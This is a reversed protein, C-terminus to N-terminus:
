KEIGDAASWLPAGPLADRNIALTDSKQDYDVIETREFRPVHTHYLSLYIERVDGASVETIPADHERVAIEDAADALSLVNHIWLLELIQRRRPDSLLSFWEDLSGSGADPSDVATSWSLLWELTATATLSLLGSARQVIGAERLKPLGTHCLAAAVRSRDGAAVHDVLEAFTATGSADSLYVLVARRRDALLAYLADLDLDSGADSGDARAAPPPSDAGNDPDTTM